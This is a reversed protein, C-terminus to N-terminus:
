HAKLNLVFIVNENSFAFMIPFVLLMNTVKLEKIYNGFIYRVGFGRRMNALIENQQTLSTQLEQLEFVYQAQKFYTSKSM